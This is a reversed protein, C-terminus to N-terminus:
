GEKIITITKRSLKKKQYSFYINVRHKSNGIFDYLMELNGFLDRAEICCSVAYCDSFQLSSGLVVCLYCM